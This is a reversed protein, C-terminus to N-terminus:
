EGVPAVSWVHRGYFSAPWSIALKEWSLGADGSRYIGMNNAVYFEAATGPNVALASVTTGNSQPLGARIQKWDQGRTKRYVYSEANESNYASWPAPSASVLVVDPDNPLVAVSYLYHHRLGSGLTRWSDGYDHSEFYGDGAASYLRGPANHNTTLTHTDYPGGEVRDKWTRGGDYSRILAGAEIALYIRGPHIPDASIYRVHHTDPKPPFRWTKASPLDTLEAPKQWTEGGDESRYLVSPETGVYVVGFGDRKETESVAVSTVRPHIVEKGTQRWTKGSDDTLWLGQGLTGCYLRDPDFPDVSICQPETENLKVDVRWKGNAQELIGLQDEMAVFLKPVSYYVFKRCLNVQETKKLDRKLM